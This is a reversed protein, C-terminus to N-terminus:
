PSYISPQSGRFPFAGIVAAVEPRVEKMAIEIATEVYAVIPDDRGTAKYDYVIAM